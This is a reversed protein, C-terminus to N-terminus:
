DVVGSGQVCPGVPIGYTESIGELFKLEAEPAAEIRNPIFLMPYGGQLEKAMAETAKLARTELNVPVVIVHAASVGGLTSAVGGPHTDVVL